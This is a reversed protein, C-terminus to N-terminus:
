MEMDEEEPLFDEKFEEVSKNEGEKSIAEDKYEEVSLGNKDKESIVEEKCYKGNQMDTQFTTTTVHGVQQEQFRIKIEIWILSIWAIFLWKDRHRKRYKAFNPRIFVILNWIGQSPITLASLFQLSFFIQGTILFVIKEITAFFWREM